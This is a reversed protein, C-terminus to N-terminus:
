FRAFGFSALPSLSTLAEIGDLNGEASRDTQRHSVNHLYVNVLAQPDDSIQKTDQQCKGIFHGLVKHADEVESILAPPYMRLTAPPMPPHAALAARAAVGGGSGSSPRQLASSPRMSFGAAAPVAAVALSAAAAAAVGGMALETDIAATQRKSAVEFQERLQETAHYPHQSDMRQVFLLSLLRILFHARFSSLRCRAGDM